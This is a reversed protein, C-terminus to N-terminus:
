HCSGSIHTCVLWEAAMQALDTLDVVCDDNTDALLPPDCLVPQPEYFLAWMIVHDLVDPSIIHSQHTTDSHFSWEGQGLQYVVGTVFDDYTEFLDGFFCCSDYFNLIQIQHRGPGYGGLAFIELWSAVGAATDYVGDGDTDTEHYLPQYYQEADGGSQSQNSRCYLPYAGAVPFSQRIRSDVAAAVHTTWGGGSLGLMSVDVAAPTTDLFYNIGQVVPELFFRFQEGDDLVPPNLKTFLENHGASGWASITVTGGGNPLVVTNDTNWGVLPMQMVLVTFGDQLLRNVADAVGDILGGQHGQHAIVLRNNYATTASAHILYMVSQFDYPAIDAVLRDVSAALGSNVGTLDGSFIGSGINTTAAPLAGTPLGASWIWEILEQRKADAQQPTSFRVQGSPDYGILEPPLASAPLIVVAITIWVCFGALVRKRNM